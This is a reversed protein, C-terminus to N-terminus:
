LLESLHERDCPIDKLLDKTFREFIDLGRNLEEYDNLFRIDTAWFYHSQLIGLLAKGSTYHYLSAM